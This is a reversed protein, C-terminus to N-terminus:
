EVALERRGAVIELHKVRHVVLQRMERDLKSVEMTQLGEKKLVVLNAIEVARQLLGPAELEQLERVILQLLYRTVRQAIGIRAQTV